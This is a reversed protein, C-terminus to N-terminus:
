GAKGPGDNPVEPSQPAAIKIPEFHSWNFNMHGAEEARRALDANWRRDDEARTDGLQEKDDRIWINGYMTVLNSLDKNYQSSFIDATPDYHAAQLGMFGMLTDYLMDNSFPMNRRSLMTKFLNPNQQVYRDSLYVWFPIHVMTYDFQDANHGPRATVQEGHDSMYFVGDAHLTNTAENMISEIVYDNFLVSNDYEDIMVQDATREKSVDRPWHYFESPYRDWYSVHSGMLHIVILQRRNTTDIKKLYPVLATDYDKTIVDTGIYQNVWYQDDCASGIAGIPTDWVGYRSQNSIWTTKFGAERALDIISYADSLNMHNYQNKETLAETLVQVTQTYSSYGHNFFVYHPDIAASTQFPTTDREYGYVNMHDRTLSEGIILVYVGDPANKLSAAVKKDTIHMHRRKEVMEQFESFSRLTEYTEYYVHALRTAGVSLACLGVNGLFLALMFWWTGRSVKTERQFSFKTTHFVLWGLLFVASIALGLDLYPINVEIYEKMEAVNTQALALLMNISILSHTISYYGIYTFQVLVYLIILIAIAIRAVIRWRKPLLWAASLSSIFLYLPTSLEGSIDSMDLVIDTKTSLYPVILSLLWLCGITIWLHVAARPLGHRIFYATVFGVQLFLFFVKIQSYLEYGGPAGFYWSFFLAVCFPVITAIAWWTKWHNQGKKDETHEDILFNKSM